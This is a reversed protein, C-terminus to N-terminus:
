SKGSIQPPTARSLCHDKVLTAVAQKSDAEAVLQVNGNSRGYVFAHHAHASVRDLGNIVIQSLSYRQLYREAIARAEPETVSPELKFGVKLPLNPQVAALIKKTKIFRVTIEDHDQSRLKGSMVAEPVFDLVSPLFVLGSHNSQLSQATAQELQENTEIAVLSSYCQPKIMCPGCVVHTTMGHRYLQETIESGLGGSSYNSVFRVQDIFGKTSGMAITVPPLRKDRNLHHACEDAFKKPDPFKAKGEESRPDLVTVLSKLKQLNAAVMPAELLSEHMNPLLLVPKKLGMYSQLLARAPSDTRGSAMASIMNASAPAIISADGHCIHPSLGDFNTIVKRTSAWELATVTTFQAAGESLYVQVSAGLRRLARVFRPAEIAGISGSVVVDLTKGELATSTVEVSLDANHSM